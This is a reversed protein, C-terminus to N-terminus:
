RDAAALVVLFVPCDAALSHPRLPIMMAESARAALSRAAAAPFDRFGAAAALAARSVARAVM